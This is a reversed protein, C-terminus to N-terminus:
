FRAHVINDANDSLRTSTRFGEKNGFTLRYAAARGDACGCRVVGPVQESCFDWLTLRGESGHSSLNFIAGYGVAKV